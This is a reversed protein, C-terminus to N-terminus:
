SLPLKTSSSCKSLGKEFVCSFYAGCPLTKSKERRPLRLVINQISFKVWLHACDGFDFCNKQNEFFPLRPRGGGGERQQADAMSFFLSAHCEISTLSAKTGLETQFFSM